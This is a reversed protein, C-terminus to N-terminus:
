PEAQLQSDESSPLSKEGLPGFSNAPTMRNSFLLFGLIRGASLTAM